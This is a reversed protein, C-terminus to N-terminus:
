FYVKQSSWFCQYNSIIRTNLEMQVRGLSEVFSGLYLFSTVLTISSDGVIIPDLDGVIIPDLDGKVVDSDM